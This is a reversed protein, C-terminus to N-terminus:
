LRELRDIIRTLTPLDVGPTRSDPSPPSAPDLLPWVDDGVLQRAQERDSTIDLQHREALATQLVRSLLPRTGHDYHWRSVPAWGLDSGIKLFSPFESAQVPPQPRAGPPFRGGTIKSLAAAFSQGPQGPSGHPTHTLLALLAAGALADSAIVLGRPGALGISSGIIVGCTITVAAIRVIRMTLRGRRSTLGGTPLGPFM